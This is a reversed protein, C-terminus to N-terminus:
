GESLDVKKRMRKLESRRRKSQLRAYTAAMSRRPRKRKKKQELAKQLIDVLKAVADNKNAWQSRSRQSRVILIGEKTLRNALRESILEKQEVTLNPSNLVDFELTVKTSVKNVHQGGPGSSRSTSFKLESEYIFTTSNIQIVNM